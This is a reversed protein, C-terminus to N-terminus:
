RLRLSKGQRSDRRLNTAAISNNQTSLFGITNNSNFIQRADSLPCILLGSAFSFSSARIGPCEILKTCTLLIFPQNISNLYNWNRWTIARLGAMSTHVQTQSTPFSKLTRVTTATPM